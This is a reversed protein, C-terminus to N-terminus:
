GLTCFETCPTDIYIWQSDTQYFDAWLVGCTKFPVFSLVSIRTGYSRIANQCYFVGQFPVCHVMRISYNATYKGRNLGARETRRHTHAHTRPWIRESYLTFSHALFVGCLWLIYKAVAVGCNQTPVANSNPCAAAVQLLPLNDVSTLAISGHTSRSTSTSQCSVSLVCCDTYSTVIAVHKSM